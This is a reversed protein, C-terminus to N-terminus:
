RRASVSYPWQPGISDYRREYKINILYEAGLPNSSEASLLGDTPSAIIRVSHNGTGIKVNHFSKPAGPPPTKDSLPVGLIFAATQAEDATCHRSYLTGSPLDSSGDPDYLSIPQVHWSRIDIGADPFLPFVQLPEFTASVVPIAVQGQGFLIWYTDDSLAIELM